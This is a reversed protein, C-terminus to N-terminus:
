TNLHNLVLPSNKTRYLFVIVPSHYSPRLTRACANRRFYRSMCSGLKDTVNPGLPANFDVFTIMHFSWLYTGQKRIVVCSVRVRVRVWEGPVNVAVPIVKTAADVVQLLACEVILLVARNSPLGEDIPDVTPAAM